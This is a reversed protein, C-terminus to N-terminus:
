SLLSRKIEDDKYRCNGKMIALCISAVKRATAKRARRSDLGKSIQHRYFEHLASKSIESRMAIGHAIGMFASKLESRGHPHRVRMIQGDSIDHQRVLKSYAWLKHKNEFRHGSCIYATIVHAYVPGVGPISSINRLMAESKINEKFQEKYLRKLEENTVIRHYLSEAVLRTTPHKVENAKMRNHKTFHASETAIGEARLIAKYKSQLGIGERCLDEYSSVLTRLKMMFSDDHYVATLNKSRLQNALHLADRYDSKPGSKKPLHAPHCVVLQEVERYLLVYLWQAINSEEFTLAKKGPISRLFGRLNTENTVFTGERIISGESDQCVFTCTKSHADLGIYADM